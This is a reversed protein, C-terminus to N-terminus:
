EIESEECYLSIASVLRAVSEELSLGKLQAGAMNLHGGGGLKECIFQVNITGLSRASIIVEDDWPFIVFSAGVGIIDLLEDAAKAAISRDIEYNLASVAIIRHIMKASRIIDYKVASSGLDTQFLTKVLTTDAGANRLFAAAEFTRVGTHMTFNKTDLVIGGLIANAECRLLDQTGCIYQLLECVLEAASSAYPEHFSLTAKDIYSAGRRHHDIVITNSCLDLVSPSEVIDPRNCDVVVLLTNNTIQDIATQEDLFIDKYEPFDLMYNILLSAATKERNVVINAQIGQKRAACIIGCASGIVDIDSNSHGMVLVNSSQSILRALNSAVMRSKVKTRKETEKVHGGYFDFNTGNKIVAQDGGRSLAMEIALQASNLSEALNSTGKGIGISLTLPAQSASKLERASEIISFKGDIFTRLHREEFIIMYRDRDVRRLIGGTFNFWKAIREDLAALTTSRASDAMGKLVEDYNDTMIVGVLPRASIVEHRLTLLETTDLWYLTALFGKTDKAATRVINGFVTYQKDRLKVPYPCETQGELIWKIDFGTIVNSISTEFLHERDGTIAQFKSNSWVIEGSEIRLIVMPMPFNIISDKTASDVNSTVQEIYRVIDRRRRKITRLYFFFLLLIVVGEGIAIYIEFFATLIAFLLLVFFFLRFGPEMAAKFKRNM